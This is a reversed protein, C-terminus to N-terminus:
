QITKQLQVVFDSLKKADDASLKQTIGQMEKQFEVAKATLENLKAQDGSAAVAQLESVYDTYKKAFTSAEPSAFTPLEALVKSMDKATEQTQEVAKDTTEEITSQASNVNDVVKEKESKCASFAFLGLVTVALVLKKM